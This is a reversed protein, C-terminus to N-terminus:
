DRSPRARARSEDDQFVLEIKNDGAAPSFGIQRALTIM